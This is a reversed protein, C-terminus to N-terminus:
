SKHSQSHNVSVLTLSASKHLCRVVVEFGMKLILRKLYLAAIKHREFWSSVIAAKFM